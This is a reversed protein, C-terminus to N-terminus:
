ALKRIEEPVAELMQGIGAPNKGGAQAMTPRGGGGGGIIKALPKILDGAKIGKAVTQDDVLVLLSVAGENQSAVVFINSAVQSQWTDGLSRLSDMSQNEVSTAIYTIDDVIKVNKFIEASAEKMLKATLSEVESQATKLDKQIQQVKHVLQDKQSVKLEQQVQELLKENAQYHGIAAQGTLAEIRRIGAGIGTESLLKFTGIENSNNVHTGGCLEISENGVNVVRVVDGYKEGFLAMAGMAKAQEIPMEEIEVNLANEIFYNVLNEIQQLEEDTVKAFHSFDFRLRDPGVYSGAQNAHAGIVDKLARHLLHTATHNQNTRLRSQRDVTLTYSQGQSLAEDFTRVFHMFPGHPGKKVDVVEAIMRDGDYIGGDDAIQGGMEAYFPSRNFFIIGKSHAPLTKVLQDDVVISQITANTTLQDHGVFNFDYDITQLVASQVAMSSEDSRASRARERQQNMAAEFGEIDVIMGEEEAMEQTLELPFGFTDYLQFALDGSIEQAKENKLDQIARHLQNEGEEITEHFREEEKKLVEEVFDKQEALEPYYDGMVQVVVPVLDAIFVQNIGLKRGHMISRRILRRLIYGRGENSPLAGDAIAFTVARIHDAIVKFSTDAKIDAGYKKTTLGAIQEIIPMFLDTEFNTPTDQMVSAMRELGMGTDVNKNPLPQYSGDPMHNYQSFVLNWIELYRENEGGPYMEPDDAALNQYAEGRDFFIETDPGCPGAGIDWFNGEEPILHDESLSCEELWVRKTEEDEPYYTVYLRDPDMDLWDPSTLFEWAWTIVEKKFYDGISWNGLMEFLTHHRATVGVNEIDNTRICKQSNAIKPNGPVETGDMFKKLAAVGSNIWLLSPDNIPILSASPIIQHDKSQWFDLFKQRIQNSTLAQM